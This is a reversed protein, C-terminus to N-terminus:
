ARAYVLCVGWTDEGPPAGSLFAEADRRDFGATTALLDLEPLSFHRMPHTESFTATVGTALERAFITYLVDVRNENPYLRPEAIRTIEVGADALRKVRVEPRQRYVAPSYWIDFVFLGGPRLHEAARAFVAQVDPNTVQYSVVHFLSLVANFHRGLQVARVDGQQCTFGPNVQTQAQAQAVMRPSLEIGTVRYGREALLRGHKGTGSGFELIEPGAVGHRRLLQDLYAVEAAYDKDQYLLDYYRGYADFRSM